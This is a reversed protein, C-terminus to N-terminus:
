QIWIPLIADVVTAMVGTILGRHQAATPQLRERFSANRSLAAPLLQAEPVGAGAM